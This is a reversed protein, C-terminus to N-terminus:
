NNKKEEKKEQDNKGGSGNGNDQSEKPAEKKGDEKKPDKPEEKKPPASPVPPKQAQQNKEKGKDKQNAPDSKEQEKEKEKEKENEKETELKNSPASERGAIDVAVVYYSGSGARYSLTSGSVISAVKKGSESYVRYGVVDRSASENWTLLGNSFSAKVSAPAKGDDNLIAGAALLNKWRPDNDPILQAPDVSRGLTIRKVFDPSLMGGPMTFEKPTSPLAMYKKGKVMVYRGNGLSDDVKTPVFKANFLDSEV